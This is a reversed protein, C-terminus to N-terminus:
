WYRLADVTLLDAPHLWRLNLTRQSRSHRDGRRKAQGGIVRDNQM